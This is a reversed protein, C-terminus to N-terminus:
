YYSLLLIVFLHLALIGFKVNMLFLELEQYLWLFIVLCGLQITTLQSILIAKGCNFTKNVRQLKKLINTIIATVFVVVVATIYGEEESCSVLASLSEESESKSTRSSFNRLWLRWSIWDLRYPSIPVLCAVTFHNRAVCALHKRCSFLLTNSSHHWPM